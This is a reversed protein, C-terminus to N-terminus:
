IYFDPITPNYIWVEKPLWIKNELEGVEYNIGKGRKIQKLIKNRNLVVETPCKLALIDKSSTIDNRIKRYQQTYTLDTDLIIIREKNQEWIQNYVESDSNTNEIFYKFDVVKPEWPNIVFHTPKYIWVETMFWRVYKHGHRDYYYLEKGSMIKRVIKNEKMIYDSPWLLVLIDKNENEFMVKRIRTAQTDYPLRADLVIFKQENEHWMEGCEMDSACYYDELIFKFKVIM